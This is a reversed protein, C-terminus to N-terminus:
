LPGGIAFELEAHASSLEELVDIFERRAELAKGRIVILQLFDIKGARYSDNVLEMNEQMAKLVDGRYGEAGSHAALARALAARVEQAVAREMATIALKTQKARANTEGRPGQNRAFLPLDFALVGQVITAKSEQEHNYAIGLRPSPLWDRSALRQQAGAADANRRAEELDFRSALAREVLVSEEPLARLEEASLEGALVLEDTATLGLSLRLEGFAVSRARITDAHARMARGLEIRATNVELLPAAGARFREDAADLGKQALGRAETALFVRQDSALARGFRMRVEARLRAGAARLQADASAKGAEAAEIRANRQGAVEIQQMLQVGYDLSRGATSSRPGLSATVNPNSNLLASAGDTRAQAVEVDVARQQLDLNRSAALEYARDLTLPEAAATMSLVLLLALCAARHRWM